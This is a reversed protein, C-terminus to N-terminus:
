EGGTIGDIFTQLVDEHILTQKTKRKGGSRPLSLKSKGLNYQEETLNGAEFSAKLLTRHRTLIKRVQDSTIGVKEAIDSALLEGGALNVVKQSENASYEKKATVTVDHDGINVNTTETETSTTSNETQNGDFTPVFDRLTM